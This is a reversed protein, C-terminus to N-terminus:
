LGDQRASIGALRHCREACAGAGACQSTLCSPRRTPRVVCAGCVNETILDKLRACMPYNFLMKAPFSELMRTAAHVDWPNGITRHSPVLPLSLYALLPSDVM